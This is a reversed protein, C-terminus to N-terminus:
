LDGVKCVTNWNRTTASVKLKKEIYNNNFKTEGFSKNCLIYVERNIIHFAEVDNSSNLLESKLGMDPECSLFSVYLMKFNDTSLKKFPNRKIVEKMEDATRIIVTVPYGLNKQLGAEVKKTLRCLDKETTDFLVNGSQIYTRVNKFGFSEFMKALEVMKIIKQGSVNIGRLFATFRIM